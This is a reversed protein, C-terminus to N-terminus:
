GLGKELAFRVLAATEHLGLKQMINARHTNLTNTSLSLVSAIQKNTLGQSIYQVVERERRTLLQERTDMESTKAEEETSRVTSLEEKYFQKGCSVARVARIIERKDASKSVYGLAGAEFCAKMHAEDDHMSLILIKVSPAKERLLRVAEVGNVEPMSLDLIAVDPKRSEVLKLAEDGDSAEGVVSINGATRLLSVLGSRVFDHDDAIVVRTRKGSM